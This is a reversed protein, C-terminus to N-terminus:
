QKRAAPSESIMEPGFRILVYREAPVRGIAFPLPGWDSSYFGAGLKGQMTAIGSPMKTEIVRRSAVFRPRVDFLTM